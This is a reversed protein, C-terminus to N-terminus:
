MGNTQWQQIAEIPYILMIVNLTLNDRITFLMGLETALFLTLSWYWRIGTAIIFGLACSALDGLSNGISDGSYGLAMTAERYRNIILPTNEFVEWGAEILTALSLRWAFPARRLPKIWYFVCAFVLGHLLHSFSYADALHQSNHMSHVDGSWLFAESGTYGEGGQCWWYRGMLHLTIVTAVLLLALAIWPAYRSKTVPQPTIPDPSDPM